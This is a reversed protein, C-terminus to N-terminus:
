ITTVNELLHGAEAYLIVEDVDHRVRVVDGRIEEQRYTEVTGGVSSGDQSWHFTRGICPERPDGTVAIKAVMAYEDSWVPSISVAQGETATNKPSGAIIIRDINLAQAMAQATITGPRPDTFGAYKLRDIISAVDLLQEFVKWNVILANPMLGSQDWVALKAAKVDARPEANASDDWENTITTKLSGWTTANFVADSVRIEANRLVADFARATSIQEAIFYDAYNVAERDDIPDEAGHEKCAYTAAQFTFNGRAYGAGPARDTTRSQLLQEIPIKGFNGAQRAVEVVPLIEGAIFGRRSMELDFEEFTALDPRLTALSNQPSPM